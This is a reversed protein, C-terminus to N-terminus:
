ASGHREYNHGDWYDDGALLTATEVSYRKRDIIRTFKDPSNM